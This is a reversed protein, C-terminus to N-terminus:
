PTMRYASIVGRYGGRFRTFLAPSMNDNAGPVMSQMDRRDGIGKQGGLIGYMVEALKRDTPNDVEISFHIQGDVAQIRYRVKVPLTERDNRLSDYSCLVGDPEAEIHSVKQDRSNFYNAEYHDQPILIRFNEGLRPEGIIQIDPVKWRVGVLDGTEESLQLTAVSTEITRVQATACLACLM